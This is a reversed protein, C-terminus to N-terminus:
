SSAEPACPACCPSSPPVPRSLTLALPLALPLPLPSLNHLAARAQRRSRLKALGGFSVAADFAENPLWGLSSPEAVCANVPPLPTSPTVALAALRATRARATRM